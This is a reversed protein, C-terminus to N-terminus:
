YYVTIGTAELDPLQYVILPTV